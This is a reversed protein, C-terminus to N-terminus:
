FPLKRILSDPILAFEKPPFYFVRISKVKPYSFGTLWNNKPVNYMLKKKAVYRLTDNDSSAVYLENVERFDYYDQKYKKKFVGIFPEKGKKDATYLVFGVKTQSITTDRIFKNADFDSYWDYNKIFKLKVQEPSLSDMHQFGYKFLISDPMYFDFLPKEWVTVVRTTLHGRAIFNATLTAVLAVGGIISLIIYRNEWFKSKYFCLAIIIVAIVSIPFILM